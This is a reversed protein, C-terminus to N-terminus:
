RSADLLAREIADDLDRAVASVREDKFQGFLSSPRDYEFIAHGSDDEYLVVRLPAYLAAPLQHRALKSATLPNGIEYQVANRRQGAIQLLGGHDRSLFLALTPGKELERLARDSEGDRLLAAFGLDLEPMRSELAAKTEGFSKTSAIKIHEVEFSSRSEMPDAMAVELAESGGLLFVALTLILRGALSRRTM